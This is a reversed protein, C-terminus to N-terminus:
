IERRASKKTYGHIDPLLLKWGQIHFLQQVRKAVRFYYDLKKNAFNLEYSVLLIVFEKGIDTLEAISTNRKRYGLFYQNSFRPPQSLLFSDNSVNISLEENIAPM